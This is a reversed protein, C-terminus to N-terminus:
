GAVVMCDCGDHAPAHGVNQGPILPLEAGEPLFQQGLALFFADLDITRGALSDCYPCNDGFTIWRKRFIQMLGYLAIALANNARVSEQRAMRAPESERLHELMAEIQAAIQADTEPAEEEGGAVRAERGQEGVGRSGQLTKMVRARLHNVHRRAAEDLYADAFGEISGVATKGTEREALAEIQAAYSRMLPAYQRRVYTEDEVLFRELWEDFEARKGKGLLRRAANGIDNAERRVVRGAVDEYLPLFAVQLRHRAAAADYEAKRVEV